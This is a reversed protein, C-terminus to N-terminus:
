SRLLQEVERALKVASWDLKKLEPIKPHLPFKHLVRLTIVAWNCTIGFTQEIASPFEELRKIMLTVVEEVISIPDTRSPKRLLTEM